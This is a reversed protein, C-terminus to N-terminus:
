EFVYKCSGSNYSENLRFGNRELFGGIDKDTEVVVQKLGLQKISEKLLYSGNGRNRHSAHIAIGLIEATYDNSFLYVIMGIKEEGNSCCLCRVDQNNKYDAVRKRYEKYSNFYLCDEYIYHAQESQLWNWSADFVKRM